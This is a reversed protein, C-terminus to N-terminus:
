IYKIRSENKVPDYSYMSELTSTLHGDGYPSKNVIVLQHLGGHM